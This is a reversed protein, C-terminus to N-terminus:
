EEEEDCGEDQEDDLPIGDGRGSVRLLG